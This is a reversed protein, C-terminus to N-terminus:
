FIFPSPTTVQVQLGLVKPPLPQCIVQPWSNSVLRALMAFDQRELLLYCILSPLPPEYRYDWCKPLGVRASWKLNRTRSWDPWCLLVGDRSLIWFNALCPPVHRYDWSSPLRPLIVAQIQSLNCHASNAGSCELRPSVTLSQLFVFLFFTVFSNLAIRISLLCSLRMFFVSVSLINPQLNFAPSLSYVPILSKM